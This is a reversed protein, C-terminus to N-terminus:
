VSGGVIERQKNERELRFIDGGPNGVATSTLLPTEIGQYLALM